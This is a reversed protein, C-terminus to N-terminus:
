KTNFKYNASWRKFEEVKKSNEKLWNVIYQSPERKENIINSFVELFGKNIMEKFYPYYFKYYFTTKDIDKNEDSCFKNLEYRLIEVNNMNISFLTDLLKKTDIKKAKRGKTKIEFKETKLLDSLMAMLVYSSPSEPKYVIKNENNRIVYPDYYSTSKKKSEEGTKMKFDLMLFPMITRTREDNETLILFRLTAFDFAINDKTALSTVAYYFNANQHSPNEKLAEEFYKIGNIFDDKDFYYRGLDFYADAKNGTKNINEQYSELIVSDKTTKNSCYNYLTKLEKLQNAPPDKKLGKNCFVLASDFKNLELYTSTLEIIAQINNTDLRLIQKYKAISEDYEKILRKNRAKSFLLRVKYLEKTQIGVVKTKNNQIDYLVQPFDTLKNNRLYLKELKKLNNYEIPITTFPNDSLNLHKLSIMRSIGVPLEEIQNKNIYLATLHFLEFFTDPFKSLKNESLLLVELNKLNNINKHISTIENHELYLHELQKLEFLQAPLITLLNNSLDLLRISYLAKFEDPILKIKNKSIRFSELLGLQKIDPPIFEINNNDLNLEVLSSVRCLESSMQNIKNNDFYLYKLQYLQQITKPVDTINNYSFSLTVLDKLEGIEDPIVEIQNSDLLLIVLNKLELIKEPFEDLKQNSLNLIRVEEKHKLAKNLKYFIPAESLGDTNGLVNLDQATSKFTSLLLFFFIFSVRCLHTM